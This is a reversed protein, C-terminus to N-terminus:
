NKIQHELSNVEQAPGKVKMVKHLAGLGTLKGKKSSKSFLALIVKVAL